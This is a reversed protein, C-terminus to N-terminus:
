SLNELEERFESRFRRLAEKEDKEFGGQVLNSKIEDLLDPGLRLDYTRDWSLPITLATPVDDSQVKEVRGGIFALAKELNDTRGVEYMYDDYGDDYGDEDESEQATGGEECIGQVADPDLYQYLIYEGNEWGIGWAEPADQIRVLPRLNLTMVTILNSPFADLLSILGKNKEILSAFDTEEPNADAIETGILCELAFRGAATRSEIERMSEEPLFGEKPSFELGWEENECDYVESYGNKRRRLLMATEIEGTEPDRPTFMLGFDYKEGDPGDASFIFAPYNTMQEYLEPIEDAFAEFDQGPRLEVRKSGVAQAFFACACKVAENLAAESAEARAIRRQTAERITKKIEKSDMRGKEGSGGKMLDEFNIVNSM